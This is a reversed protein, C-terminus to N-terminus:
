GRFADPSNLFDLEAPTSARSLIQNRHPFRGFTKIIKYHTRASDIAIQSDPDSSLTEFLKVSKVQDEINESHEFPLYIFWRQVPLLQRDLGSDIAHKAISLALEDAAFADPTDRFINRSFQDLTIILALCSTPSDQWGDLLGAVGFQHIEAFREKIKRDIAPASKFWMSRPKGYQEGNHLTDPTGFWFNLIEAGRNM